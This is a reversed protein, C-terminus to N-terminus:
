PVLTGKIVSAQCLVFGGKCHAAFWSGGNRSMRMCNKNKGNFRNGWNQYTDSIAKQDSDWIWVKERGEDNAGLLPNCSHNCTHLADLMQEKVVESRMEAPIFGHRQCTQRM